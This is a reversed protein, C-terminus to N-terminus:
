THPTGSGPVAFLLHISNFLRSDIRIQSNQQSCRVKIAHTVVFSARSPPRRLKAAAANSYSRISRLWSPLSCLPSSLLILLRCLLLVSLWRVRTRCCVVLRSMAFPISIFYTGNSYIASSYVRIHNSLRSISPPPALRGHRPFARRRLPLSSRTGGASLQANGPDTWSNSVRLTSGLYGSKHM